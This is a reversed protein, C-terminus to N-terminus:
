STTMSSNTTEERREEDETKGEIRRKSENPPEHSACEGRVIGAAWPLRWVRFLPVIDRELSPNTRGILADNSALIQKIDDVDDGPREKGGFGSVDVKKPEEPEGLGAPTEFHKNETWGDDM